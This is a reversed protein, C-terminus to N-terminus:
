MSTNPTYSTLHLNGRIDRNADIDNINRPISTTFCLAITCLTRTKRDSLPTVTSMWLVILILVTLLIKRM